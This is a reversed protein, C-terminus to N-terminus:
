IINVLWTGTRQLPSIFLRDSLLFSLCFFQHINSNIMYRPMVKQTCIFINRFSYDSTKVTRRVVFLVISTFSKVFFCPYPCFCRCLSRTGLTVLSLLSADYICCMVSSVLRCGWFESDGHEGINKSINM